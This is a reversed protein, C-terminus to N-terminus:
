KHGKVISNDKYPQADSTFIGPLIRVIKVMPCEVRVNSSKTPSNFDFLMVFIMSM